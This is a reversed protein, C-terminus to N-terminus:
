IKKSGYREKVQRIVNNYNEDHIDYVLGQLLDASTKDYIHEENEIGYKVQFAKLAQDFSTYNTGMLFNIKEKIFIRQTSTLYDNNNVGDVYSVYVNTGLNITFNDYIKDALTEAIKDTYIGKTENIKYKTAFAKIAVELENYSSSLLMNIRRLILEKDEQTLQDNSTVGDIYRQYLDYDIYEEGLFVEPVIGRKNICAKSPSCVKAFTYRILSGDGFLSIFSQAIGKGYSVQGVIHTKDKTFKSDRLGVAFSEGASATNSDVIVTINDIRNTYQVNIKDNNLAQYSGDAYLYYTTVEGKQIFLGLTEVCNDVYGGGNGRLDLILHNLTDDKNVFIQKEFIDKLENQPTTEGMGKDGLFSSITVYAESYGNVNTFERLKVKDVNYVGRTVIIPEKVEQYVGNADKRKIYIEVKSKDDGLFINSWKDSTYDKIIYDTGYTGDSNINRVRTIIDQEKLGAKEAPSNKMIEKVYVEGYYATRSFGLGVGSSSYDQTEGNAMSTYYTFPDDFSETLGYIMGDLLDRESVEIYYHQKLFEYVNNISSINSNNNNININCSTLTISLGILSAFLIKNKKM